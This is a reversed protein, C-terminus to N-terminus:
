RHVQTSYYEYVVFDAKSGPIHFAQGDPYYNTMM